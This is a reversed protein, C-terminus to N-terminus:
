GCRLGCTNIARQLGCIGSTLMKSAIISPFKSKLSFAILEATSHSLCIEAFIQSSRSLRYRSKAIPRLPVSILGARLINRSLNRRFVGVLSAATSLTKLLCLIICVSSRLLKSPVVTSFINNMLYLM